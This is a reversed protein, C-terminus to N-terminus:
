RVIHLPLNSVRDGNRLMVCYAGSPLDTVSVVAEDSPLDLSRVTRGLRDVIEVRMGIAGRIRVIESAPNPAISVPALPQEISLQTTAEFTVDFTIYDSLDSVNFIVVGIVSTGTSGQPDFQLKFTHDAQGPQLEVQGQEDSELVFSPYCAMGSCFNVRHHPDKRMTDIRVGFRVPSDSINEVSIYADLSADPLVRYSLKQGEVIRFSPNQLQPYAWRKSCACCGSKIRITSTAGVMRDGATQALAAGASLLLAGVVVVRMRPKM